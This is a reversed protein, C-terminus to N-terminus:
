IRDDTKEEFGHAPEWGLRNRLTERLADIGSGEKASIFVAGPFTLECSRIVQEEVLDAKNFCLVVPIDGGGMERVTEEAVSRKTDRDKASLDVVHILLDSTLADEFTSRFSEILGHPIDRIFGM